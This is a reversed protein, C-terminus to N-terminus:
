YEEADPLARSPNLDAKELGGSCGSRVESVIDRGWFMHQLASTAFGHMPASQQRYRVDLFTATPQRLM